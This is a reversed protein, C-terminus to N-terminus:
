KNRHITTRASGSMDKREACVCGKLVLGAVAMTLQALCGHLPIDRGAAAAGASNMLKTTILTGRTLMNCM